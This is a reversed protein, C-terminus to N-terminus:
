DGAGVEGASGEAGFPEVAEVKGRFVYYAFASYTLVFPLVVCVGVLLILQSGAPSAAQWITVSYPVLYPWLTAGLGAFAILMLAEAAYFAGRERGRALLLWCGLGACLFAIGLVLGFAPLATGWRAGINEEARAAAFASLSALVMFCPILSAAVIRARRQLSGATRHNLWAAGTLAYGCALSAATLLSLPSLFDWTGGSFRGGETKVGSLLGGAVLGQCISAGLSGLSFAYDWFKRGTATQFRFEFATGRFAMCLLMLVLPVYFAPLLTGYVVPFGGLLTVGALVIWTENADWIPSISYVMRDRDAEERATLLLIGVGLDFGDLAVYMALAFAVVVALLVPLSESM